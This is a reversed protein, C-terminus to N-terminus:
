VEVFAVGDYKLSIINQDVTQCYPGAKPLTMTCLGTM